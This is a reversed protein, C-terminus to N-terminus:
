LSERRDRNALHPPLSEELLHAVVQEQDGGYEELLRSVFGSGLDPFLDQIQTIQSMRHVHMEAEIEDKDDSALGKGKDQSKKDRRRPKISSGGSKRFGQLTSIRSKLASTLSNAGNARNQVQKLIPTATVLEAVMSDNVNFPGTKHSEAAAQLSYLQDSLMSYNPINGETLGLLCLYTTTIIASRLPPNMIKFCTILGDLFDTGALFFAATDPSAHILHNIQMLRGELTKLDGRIGADLGQIFYKKLSTLSTEIETHATQYIQALLPAARAKGYLRSLDVLFEWELLVPPPSSSKLLKSLLAFCTALLSRAAVSDGLISPGGAATESVFSKVFGAISDSKGVLQNFESDPVALYVQGLANWAGVFSTWEESSLHNRWEASPFPAFAPLGRAPAM